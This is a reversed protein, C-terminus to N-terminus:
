NPASVNQIGFNKAIEWPPEGKSACASVKKQLKLEANRRDEQELGPHVQAVVWRVFDMQRPFVILSSNQTVAWDERVLGRVRVAIAPTLIRKSPRNALGLAQLKETTTADSRLEGLRRRITDYSYHGGHELNEKDFRRALENRGMCITEGAVEVHVLKQREQGTTLISVVDEPDMGEVPWIAKLRRNVTSKPIESLQVFEPITVLRDPKHPHPIQSGKEIVVQSERLNERSRKQRSANSTVGDEAAKRSLETTRRDEHPELGFAEALTWGLDNIRSYVRGMFPGPDIEAAQALAHAAQRFSKFKQLTGAVYLSVPKSNGKGGASRGGPMLNYGLPAMTKLEDIWRAEAKLMEALSDHRSLERISFRGAGAPGSRLLEARIAYGLSYPSISREGRSAEGLHAALREKLTRTTVGVYPKIVGGQEDRHEIIYNSFVSGM